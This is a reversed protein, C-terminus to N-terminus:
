AGEEEGHASCGQRPDGTALMQEMLQPGPTRRVCAPRGVPPAPCFSSSIKLLGDGNQQGFASTQNRVDTGRDDALKRPLALQRGLGPLQGGLQEAARWPAGAVGGGAASAPLM